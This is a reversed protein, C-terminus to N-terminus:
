LFLHCWRSFVLWTLVAFFVSCNTRTQPGLIIHFTRDASSDFWHNPIVSLLSLSSTFQMKTMKQTHMHYECPRKKVPFSDPSSKWRLGSFSTESVRCRTSFDDDENLIHILFNSINYRTFFALGASQRILEYANSSFTPVHKARSIFVARESAWKSASLWHTGYISLNFWTTIM